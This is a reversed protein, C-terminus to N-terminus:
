EQVIVEEWDDAWCDSQLASWPVVTNEETKLFIFNDLKYSKNSSIHGVEIVSHIETMDHIEESFYEDERYRVFSHQFDFIYMGKGNWAKRSYLKGEKVKNIAEEYNM